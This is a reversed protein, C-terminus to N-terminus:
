RGFRERWAEERKKRNITKGAMESLSERQRMKMMYAFIDMFVAGTTRIHHNSEGTLSFTGVFCQHFTFDFVDKGV